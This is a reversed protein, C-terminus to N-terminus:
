RAFASTFKNAQSVLSGGFRNTHFEMSQESLADFVKRNLQYVVRDAMSWQLFLVLRWIVLEGIAVAGVFAAIYPWFTTLLQDAPITEATLKNVVMSVILMGAYSTLFIAVPQLLMVPIFYRKYNRIVSWFLRLTDAMFPADQKKKM